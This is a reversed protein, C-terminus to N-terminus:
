FYHGDKAPHFIFPAKRSDRNNGVFCKDQLSETHKAAQLDFAILGNMLQSIHVPIQSFHNEPNDYTFTFMLGPKFFLDPYYIAGVASAASSFALIMARASFFGTFSEPAKTVHCNTEMESSYLSCLKM